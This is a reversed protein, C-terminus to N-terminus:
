TRRRKMRTSRMATSIKILGSARSNPLMWRATIAMTKIKIKFTWHLHSGTINGSSGSKCVPDGQYIAQGNTVKVESLHALVSRRKSDEIILHLGYGNAGDDKVTAVGDHPAYVPTGDTTEFDIGDHGKLGFPAYRDPNQGFGQTILPTGPLPCFIM